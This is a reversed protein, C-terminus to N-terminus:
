LDLLSVINNTTITIGIKESCVYDAIIISKINKLVRNINAVHASVNKIFQINNDSNM